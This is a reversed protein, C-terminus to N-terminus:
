GEASSRMTVNSQNMDLDISTDEAPSFFCPTLDFEEMDAYVCSFFFFGCMVSSNCAVRYLLIPNLASNGGESEETVTLDAKRKKLFPEAFSM